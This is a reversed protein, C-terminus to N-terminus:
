GYASTTAPSRTCTALMPSKSYLAIPGELSGRNSLRPRVRGGKPNGLLSASFPTSNSPRWIGPRPLGLTGSDNETQPTSTEDGVAGFTTLRTFVPRRMPAGVSRPLVTPPLAGFKRTCSPGARNTEFPFLSRTSRISGTLPTMLSRRRMSGDGSVAPRRPTPVEPM